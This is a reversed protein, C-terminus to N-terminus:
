VLVNHWYCLVIVYRDNWPFQMEKSQPPAFHLSGLQSHGFGLTSGLGLNPYWKEGHANFAGGRNGNVEELGLSRYNMVCYIVMFRWDMHYAYVGSHM